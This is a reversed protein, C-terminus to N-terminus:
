PDPNEAANIRGPRGDTRLEAGVFIVSILPKEPFKGNVTRRPFQTM